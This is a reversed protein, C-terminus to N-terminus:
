KRYELGYKAYFAAIEDENRVLEAHCLRKSAEDYFGITTEGTCISSETRICDASFGEPIKLVSKNSKFLKMSLRGEKQM